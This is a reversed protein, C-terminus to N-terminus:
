VCSQYHCLLEKYVAMMEPFKNELGMFEEQSPTYEEYPEEGWPLRSIDRMEHLALGMEGGPFLFTGTSEHYRELLALFQSQNIDIGSETAEIARLLGIQKLEPAYHELVWETLGKWAGDPHVWGEM